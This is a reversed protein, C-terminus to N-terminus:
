KGSPNVNVQLQKAAQVQWLTMLDSPSHTSSAGMQIDPVWRQQGMAAAYSKNVEVWADLKMKLAGDANLALKKADASAKAETMTKEAELKAADLELKAVAVQQEGTTVAKAKEVEQAWKAQAANAEGEKAVTLARQEAKRADAMAQQVAMAAQQQQKIQEEVQPSYTIQNITINYANIGFSEIPSIEEREIGNPGAGIKPQVMDITKEQGSIIDTTKVTHRETRYVGHVVQDSIFNILDARKEAYSERSSILQATMYVSKNVVQKVLEHNIAEMSGYNSHLKIMRSPDTPLDYRLSGSITGHGGDNFQVNISDDTKKGEDEKSSFWYQASRKYRTLRGFNQWHVGPTSWVQLQGDMFNQKVVIEEAGVTTVSNFIFVLCLALVVAGAILKWLSKSLTEKM